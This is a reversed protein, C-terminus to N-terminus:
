KRDPGALAQLRDKFAGPATGYSLRERGPWVGNRSRWVAFVAWQAFTGTQVNRVGINYRSSGARLVAGPVRGIGKGQGLGSSPKGHRKRDIGPGNGGDMQRSFRGSRGKFRPPGGNRMFRRSGGALSRWPAALRGFVARQRLAEGRNRRAYEACHCKRERGRFHVSHVLYSGARAHSVSGGGQGLAM